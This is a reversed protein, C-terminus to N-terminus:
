SGFAGMVGFPDRQDTSEVMRANIPDEGSAEGEAFEEIARELHEEPNYGQLLDLTGALDIELGLAAVQLEREIMELLLQNKSVGHHEAVLGLIEHSRSDHFRLTFKPADAASSM